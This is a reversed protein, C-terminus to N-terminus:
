CSSNKRQTDHHNDLKRRRLIPFIDRLAWNRHNDCQYRCFCETVRYFRGNQITSAMKKVAKQQKFRSIMLISLVYQSSQEMSYLRHFRFHTNSTTSLGIHDSLVYTLSGHDSYMLTSRSNNTEDIWLTCDLDKVIKTTLFPRLSGIPFTSTLELTHQVSSYITAPHLVYSIWLITWSAM